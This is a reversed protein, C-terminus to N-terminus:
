YVRLWLLRLGKPARAEGRATLDLRIAGHPGGELVVYRAAGPPLDFRLSLDVEGGLDVSDSALPWPDYFPPFGNESDNLGGFIDRLDFTPLHWDDVPETQSESRALGDGPPALAWGAMLDEWYVNEGALATVASEMNAIGRLRGPGGTSLRRFLEEEAPGGLLGPGAPSRHDAVWRLFLWAFGRMELSALGGPELGEATGLARPATAQLFFSARSFNNLHFHRFEGSGFLDVFRLDTAPFQGAVAMGAAAEASHALGESLWPFELDDFSFDGPGSLRQQASMLHMLEHAILAPTRAETLGAPAPDAFRGTRDAALTYLVEGQNSAPCGARDALDSPSFWGFVRFANGRPTVRNVAPTFLMWVVGNGDWDGPPGFYATDLPFIVDDAVELIRRYADASMEGAAEVDEALAVNEGVARVVATIQEQSNCDIRFSSDVANNFVVTEGEVPRERRHVAGAGAGPGADLRQSVPVPRVEALTERAAARFALEAAGATGTRPDPALGVAPGRGASVAARSAVATSVGAGPSSAIELRLQRADAAPDPAANVVALLYRAPRDSAPATLRYAGAAGVECATGTQPALQQRGWRGPFMDPPCSAGDPGSTDACSAALVAALVLVPGIPVRHKVAGLSAGLTGPRPQRDRCGRGWVM